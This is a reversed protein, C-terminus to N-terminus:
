KKWTVIQYRARARKFSFTAKIKEKSRFKVGNVQTLYDTAEKLNKEAENIDVLTPLIADNVIITVQNDEVLAVGGILALSTWGTKQRFLIPGIDLATILPIHNILIGVQGTRTPLILEETEEDKFIGDPTQISLQLRM